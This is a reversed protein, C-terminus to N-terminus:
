KYSFAPSIKVRDEHNPFYKMLALNASNFERSIRFIERIAQNAFIESM